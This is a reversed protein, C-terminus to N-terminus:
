AQPIRPCGNVTELGRRRPRGDADLNVPKGGEDYKVVPRGAEDLGDPWIMTQVLSNLRLDDFEEACLGGFASRMAAMAYRIRRVSSENLNKSTAYAEYDDALQSVTNSAQQPTRQAKKQNVAWEETLWKQYKTLAERRTVSGEL